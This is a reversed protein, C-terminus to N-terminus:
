ILLPHCNRTAPPLLTGLSATSSCLHCRPLYASHRNTAYISALRGRTNEQTTTTTTTNSTDLLGLESLMSNVPESFPHYYYFCRPTDM